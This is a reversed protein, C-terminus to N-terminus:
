YKLIKRTTNFDKSCITIFYVGSRFASMDIQYMNGKMEKSLLLQGNVTAIDIHYLDLSATEITLVKNLPNPYIRINEAIYESIGTPNELIRLSYSDSCDGYKLKATIVVTGPKQCKIIGKTSDLVTVLSDNDSSWIITKNAFNPPQVDAHLEIEDGEFITDTPEVIKIEECGESLMNLDFRWVDALVTSFIQSNFPYGGILYLFDGIREAAMDSRNFPMPEMLKWMDTAPDYEQIANTCVSHSRSQYSNGGFLYIKDNYVNTIHFVVPVPLDALETWKNEIPDYQEAKEVLRACKLTGDYLCDFSFGGFVYIRGNYACAKAGSGRKFLMDPLTNWTDTEPNYVFADKQGSIDYDPWNKLGGFVYLKDELVCSAAGANKRPCDQKTEWIDQVPDYVYTSSSYLPNASNYYGGSIYMKGKIFGGGAEVFDKPATSLTSWKNTQTNYVETSNLIIGAKNSGGFLYILSDIICSQSGGNAADMSTMQEWGNQAHTNMNSGVILLFIAPICAIKFYFKKM